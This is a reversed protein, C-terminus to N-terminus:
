IYIYIYIYAYLFSTIKRQTGMFHYLEALISIHLLNYAVTRPGRGDGGRGVGLFGSFLGFRGWFYVRSGALAPGSSNGRQYSCPATGPAPVGRGQRRGLLGFLFLAVRPFPVSPIPVDGQHGGGARGGWVRVGLPLVPSPVIGRPGWPLPARAARPAPHGALILILLSLDWPLPSPLLSGPNHLGGAHSHIVAAHLHRLAEPEQGCFAPLRWPGSGREWRVGWPPGTGRSGPRPTVRCPNREQLSREREHGRPLSHCLVAVDGAGAPVKGGM